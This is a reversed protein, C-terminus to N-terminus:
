WLAIQHATEIPSVHAVHGGCAHVTPYRVCTVGYTTQPKAHSTYTHAELAGSALIHRVDWGSALLWDSVIRRHCKYHTVEACMYATVSRRAIAELTERGHRFEPSLAYDAYARFAPVRWGDNGSGAIIQHRRGGLAVLHTYGIGVESLSAALAAQNFQPCRRSAPYHRIDVLTEIHHRTLLALFHEIDQTSHGITYITTM